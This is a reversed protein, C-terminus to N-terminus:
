VQGKDQIENREGFAAAGTRKNNNNNSYFSIFEGKHVAKGEVSKHSNSFGFSGSLLSVSTTKFPGVSPKLNLM